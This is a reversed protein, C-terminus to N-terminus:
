ASSPATMTPSRRAPARMRRLRRDRQAADGPAPAPPPATEKFLAALAAGLTEEMVVRDGYAAIM